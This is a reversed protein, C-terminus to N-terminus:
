AFSYSLFAHYVDVGNDIANLVVGREEGRGPVIFVATVPPACDNDERGNSWGSTVLDLNFVPREIFDTCGEPTNFCFIFEDISPDQLTFLFASEGDHNEGRIFGVRSAIVQTEM